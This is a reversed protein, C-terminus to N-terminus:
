GHYYSISKTNRNSVNTSPFCGRLRDLLLRTGKQSLILQTSPLIQSSTNTFPSLFPDPSERKDSSLAARGSAGDIMIVGEPSNTESNSGGVMAHVGLGFPDKRSKLGDHEGRGSKGEGSKVRVCEGTRSSGKWSNLVSGSM